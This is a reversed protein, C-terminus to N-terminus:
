KFCAFVRGDQEHWRISNNGDDGVFLMPGAFYYRTEMTQTDVIRQTLETITGAPFWPVVQRMDLATSEDFGFIRNIRIEEQLQWTANSQHPQPQNSTDATHDTLAKFLEGDADPYVRLDNVLIEQGAQWLTYEDTLLRCTYYSLGQLLPDGTDKTPDPYAPCTIVRAFLSDTAQIEGAPSGFRVMAWKVGTGPQKWLISVPGSEVSTMHGCENDTIEAFSHTEDTVSIRVQAGGFSAAKVIQGNAAPEQLIVFKGNGHSAATPVTGTLVVQNQFSDAATDPDHLVGDIGLIAFRGCDQGSQNKIYIPRTSVNSSKGQLTNQRRSLYDKACDIFTNYSSAPIVLPDGSQVKRM